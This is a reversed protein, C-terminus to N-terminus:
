KTVDFVITPTSYNINGRKDMAYIKVNHRGPKLGKFTARNARAFKTMMGGDVRWAYVIDAAFTENDRGEWDIIAEQNATVSKPSSKITITPPELEGRFDYKLIRKYTSMETQAEIIITDNLFENGRLISIQKEFDGKQIFEKQPSTGFV